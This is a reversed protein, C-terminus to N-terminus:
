YESIMRSLDYEGMREEGDEMVDEQDVDIDYAENEQLLDYDEEEKKEIEDPTKDTTDEYESYIGEINKIGSKEEIEEIHTMSTIMYYFMKVESNANEKDENFMDFIINIFDVIFNCITTKLVKNEENYKFINKLERYIYFTLLNGSEDIKNIEESNLIKQKEFDYDLKVNDTNFHNIGNTIAKWHKFILGSDDKNTLVIGTMKKRYIEILKLMKEKCYDDATLEENYGNLIRSLITKLNLIVKKLQQIRDKVISEIITKSIIKKDINDKGHTLDNYINDVKISSTTYGLLKIKNLISYNLKIRRNHKKNLIYNKNEEKYGLLIKTTADYYVEVKGYKHNVYYIVNTKFFPHNEKEIIKKNSDLIVINKDLMNGIHDHDIIYLNETLNFNTFENGVTKQINEMLDLLFDMNHKKDKNFEDKLKGVATTIYDIKKDYFDSM